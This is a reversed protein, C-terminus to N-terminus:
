LTPREGLTVMAQIVQGDRHIQLTVTDGVRRGLVYAALAGFTTVPNGDIATIIDGGAPFDVGGNLRGGRLGALSAPGHPLVELILAGSRVPLNLEAALDDTITRGTIGLWPHSVRGARLDTLLSRVADSALSLSLLGNRTIAVIIGVVEGRENVLAGGSDGPYVTATSVLNPVGARTELDTELFAGATPGLQRRPSRGLAIVTDGRQLLSSLGLASAPLPRGADIRLLAVDFVRDTGVVEAPVVDGTRLQVTVTVARDVVHGATLVLGAPDIIIGSGSGRGARGDPTRFTMSVMVVARDAAEVAFPPPSATQAPLPAALLAVAGLVCAGRALAPLGRRM